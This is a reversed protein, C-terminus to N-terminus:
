TKEKMLALIADADIYWDKQVEKPLKNFPITSGSLYSLKEAIKGRLVETNQPKCCICNTSSSYGESLKEHCSCSCYEQPKLTDLRSRLIEPAHKGMMKELEGVRRELAFLRNNMDEIAAIQINRGIKQPKM